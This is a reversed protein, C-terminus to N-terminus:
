EETLLGDRFAYNVSVTRVPMDLNQIMYRLADVAHDYGERKDPQDSGPKYRFKELSEILRTCRAHVYLRPVGSAPKLRARLMELGEATFRRPHRVRFGAEKVKDISGVGTQDSRARGAPDVGIWALRPWAPVGERALGRTMAALHEGLLVDAQCREDVVRVVGAGDVAAWLIATGRIGFDMGGIWKVAGTRALADDDFVHVKPDFEPVVTERRRPRLCLMESQWAAESVRRKQAIADDITVHGAQAPPRGKARGDCEPLLPCNTARTAGRCARAPPCHELVDVIGWRFLTRRGRNAEGVIAHMVGHPNHMTSLCEVTGRAAVGGCDKSRTTLQAAEWVEPSFLDVEDCRLKQVRTGRVSTQSQALLEVRSGNTLTLRRQTIRGRVQPAFVELAFMWRLHAYMRAAQDMSGALIRVEIEPKFVLDLLTAVAGLFTKGGGRNAWVVCDAPREPPPPGDPPADAFFAHALYDFPAAHGEVLPTRAIAVGVHRAVWAHLEDATRPYEEPRPGEDRPPNVKTTM